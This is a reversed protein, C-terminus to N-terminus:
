WGFYQSNDNIALVVLVIVIVVIAAIIWGMACIRRSLQV